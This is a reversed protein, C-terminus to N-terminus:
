LNDGRMLKQLPLLILALCVSLLVAAACLRGMDLAMFWNNFLHQILYISDHPYAGAVLYAERYAKFTNLLSLLATIGLTPLMLPFTIYIFQQYVNAGDASSAEYLSDPIGDLGCLWLIVDYGTNKWIYTLILVWFAAGTGMFDIEAAGLSALAGNIIGKQSFLVQWFLALSAVPVAMPLLYATKFAKGKPKVGQLLLALVLSVVLLLPVCVCIFRATNYAATQFARNSFVSSYNEFGVAKTGIANTFSRRIVECFPLLVFVTVGTISPLLFMAAAKGDSRRRKKNVSQLTFSWIKLQATM